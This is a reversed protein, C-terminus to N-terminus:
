TCSGFILVVPKGKLDSLKVPNKGDLDQITFDPAGSGEKLAVDRRLDGKKKKGKNNEKNNELNRDQIKDQAEVGFANSFLVVLFLVYRM